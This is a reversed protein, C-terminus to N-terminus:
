LPMPAVALAIAVMLSIGATFLLVHRDPEVPLEVGSWATLAQTAHGAFLWGLAAGSGAVVLSELLLQWLLARTHAGLARRLCFEALRSSNRALLLLIVNACGIILVLGVMSMLFRLPHEYDERLSEAGRIASLVLQPKEDRPDVPASNALANEFAPTLQAVAQAPSVGPRLRGLMMLALWNPTGYLTGDTPSVGWANLEPRTQLPIWFDMRAREPDVGYFGPPAVGVVTFAVGKVYIAKGLIDQDSAFRGKWWACNLVVVPAHKSEDELTFARGLVPQVQLASFFNGSVMEGRAEEPQSGLRVAVKDFSLPAFGIVEQFVEHRARLAEFVAMSMSMDRFGTQSTNIPQNRLHFYVLQEPHGVPLRRLVVANMVSFIATNAGIGLAVTLISVIAFAPAKGLQRWTYRFDQALRRM